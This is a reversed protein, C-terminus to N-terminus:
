QDTLHWTKLLSTDVHSRIFDVINDHKKQLSEPGDGYEPANKNVVDHISGDGVNTGKLASSIAGFLSTKNSEYLRNTETGMAAISGEGVAAGREGGIISGLAGLAHGGTRYLRGFAGGKQAGKMLSGFINNVQALQKDAQQAQTFQRTIEGMQDRAKPTYQLGRYLSEAGKHLIPEIPVSTISEEAPSKRSVGALQAGVQQRHMAELEQTTLGGNDGGGKGTGPAGARPTHMASEESSTGKTGPLSSLNVAAEQLLKSKELAANAGLQQAAVRSQPTGLKDAILQAKHTYLDLLSAKTLNNAAVGAGYLDQYAGLVTRQNNTRAQQGAIDRDIQSNLFRLASNDTSGLQGAGLGGLILGLGSLVKKGAGMNEVYANPNIPNTQIYQNFDNVHSSMQNFLDQAVKQNEAVGSLYGQEVPVAAATKATDIAQQGKVAEQTNQAVAAPNMTGNAGLNKVASPVQPAVVNVPEAAYHAAANQAPAVTPAPPAAANITIHTGGAPAASDPKAGSDSDNAQVTDPSGEDFKQVQALRIIQERQIKPLAKMAITMEHGKAHRLTAKTGDQSSLKWDKFNLM